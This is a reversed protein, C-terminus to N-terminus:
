IIPSSLRRSVNKISCNKSVMYCPIVLPIGVNNLDDLDNILHNSFYEHIEAILRKTITDILNSVKDIDYPMSKNLMAANGYCYILLQEPELTAALYNFTDMVIKDLSITTDKFNRIRLCNLITIIDYTVKGSILNKQAIDTQHFIKNEDFLYSCCDKKHIKVLAESWGDNSFTFSCILLPNFNSLYFDIEEATIPYLCETIIKVIKINEKNM